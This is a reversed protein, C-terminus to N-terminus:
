LSRADVAEASWVCVKSPIELTPELDNGSPLVDFSSFFDGDVIGLRPESESIM